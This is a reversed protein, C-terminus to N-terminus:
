SEVAVSSQDLVASTGLVASCIRDLRKFDDTRWLRERLRTRRRALSKSPDALYDDVEILDAARAAVIRALVSIERHDENDPDYEAMVRYPLAHIHREGFAGKPNFPLIAETMARSGLMGVFYWAESEDEVFRWYLTQDVILDPRGDLQICAACIHKGGAGALILHGKGGYVQKSLKLRVNIREQLSAGKGVKRLKANIARFRRASHVFGM